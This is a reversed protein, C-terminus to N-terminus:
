LFFFCCYFLWFRCPVCISWSCCGPFLCHLGFLSFFFFVRSLHCATSEQSAFQTEFTCTGTSSHRTYIARISSVGYATDGQGGSSWNKGRRVETGNEVAGDGGCGGGAAPAFLVSTPKKPIEREGVLEGLVGEKEEPADSAGSRWVWLRKHETALAVMSADASFAIDVGRAGPKEQGDHLLKHITCSGSSNDPGPRAAFFFFVDHTPCRYPLTSPVRLIFPQNCTCPSAVINEFTRCWTYSYGQKSM